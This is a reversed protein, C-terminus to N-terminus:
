LEIRRIKVQDSMGRKFRKVVAQDLLIMVETIALNDSTMEFIDGKYLSSWGTAQRPQPEGAQDTILFV